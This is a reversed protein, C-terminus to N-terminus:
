PNVEFKRSTWSGDTFNVRLNYMGAALGQVHLEYARVNGTKGNFVEQGLINYVQVSRMKFPSENKLTVKERAPNPYLKLEDKSLSVQHIGTSAEVIMSITDAGCDNSVILTVTYAGDQDYNHEPVHNFSHVGDGFNWDYTIAHEVGYATFSFSGGAIATASISDVHPLPIMGIMISDAAICGSNDAVVSYMGSDTVTVSQTTDSTSWLFATGPAQVGADLTIGTGTCIMTDAGLSIVPTQTVTVTVTDSAHCGTPLTVTVSYHGGTAVALTNSVSGDNWLYTSGAAQPGASLTVSHGSCFTTDAGLDLVPVAGASINIADTGTCGSATTVTVSYTGLASVMLTGGTSGDSWMYTSGASQGGPSLTITGACLVTDAGLNVVPLANVTVDVTDSAMCGSANTVAVSYSGATNVSLSNGSSGNSWLYTSGTPQNGANLTIYSGSCIGTDNGLDVTPNVGITVNITDAKSCGFTNTVTCYYTGASSTVLTSGTSGDSWLYTTGAATNGTGLTASNGSCLILDPGLNNAPVNCITSFTKAASWDASDFGPVCIGKVYFDYATNPDLNSLTYSNTTSNVLTGTGPAFGSPGYEILYHGQTGTWSIVAGTATINTASLTSATACAPLTDVSINSLYLDYENEDSHAHFGVYYTDTAPAIFYVTTDVGDDMSIDTNDFLTNTMATASSADGFAVALKETYYTSNNGYRFSVKYVKGGTLNLGPTYIWSDLAGYGADTYTCALYTGTFGNAYDSSTFWGPDNPNLLETIMCEPIGPTVAAAIPAIYPVTTSNCLTTFSVPGTWVSKDTGSCVSRVWVYYQTNATLGSVSEFTDTSTGTATTTDTPATNTTDMYYEYGNGPLQYPTTWTIDATTRTINGANVASPEFCSPALDMKFDDFAIYWPAGSSSVKLGFYYDGSTAPTFYFTKKEQPNAGYTLSGSGQPAFDSGLQTAGTSSQSSNYFVGVTWDPGTYGDGQMYFSFAYMTGATLSFAPTWMYDDSANYDDRLYNNGEHPLNYDAEDTTEWDGSENLWCNPFSSSGLSTLGEFGETWPLASIAACVTNFAQSLSWDSTDTASCLSRVWFYYTASANLGTLNAFTDTTSGSAPTSATPVANSLSYYYQYGNTPTGINSPMWSITASSTTYSGSSLAEPSGCTINEIKVNDIAWWYDWSGTYHFRVVVTSSGGCATTIDIITHEATTMDPYNVTGVDNSTQELVNTWTSGNWVDVDAVSGCCNYYNQDFSLQIAGTMSSVNFTDTELSADQSNGSGYNDSDLITFDADFGPSGGTPLGRGDPNTFQWVQGSSGNDINRWGAPLVQGTFDASVLVQGYGSGPSCLALGLSLLGPAAWRRWLPYSTKNTTKM